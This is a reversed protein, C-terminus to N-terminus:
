ERLEPHVHVVESSRGGGKPKVTARRLWGHEELIEMAAAVEERTALGAWQRNYIDRVKMGHEVDGAYMRDLLTKAAITSTNFM